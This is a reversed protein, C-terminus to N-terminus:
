QMVTHSYLNEKKREKLAPFRGVKDGVLKPHWGHIGSSHNRHANPSIPRSWNRFNIPLLLFIRKLQNLIFANSVDSSFIWTPKSTFGSKANSIMCSNHVSFLLNLCCWFWFSPFVHRMLVNKQWHPFRIWSQTEIPVRVVACAATKM